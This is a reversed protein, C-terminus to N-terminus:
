APQRTAAKTPRHGKGLASVIPRRGVWNSKLAQALEVMVRYPDSARIIASAAGVCEMGLRLAASVDKATAIGAGCAVRIEPNVAKAAQLSATIIEPRANSIARGSGILDPHEVLIMDPNFRSVTACLEPSDTCVCSLLGVEKARRVAAEIQGAQLRKEAHNILTGVAGAEKVAEPLVHGTHSGPKIPDIHQAFVPIGVEKSIAAIDTFQPILVISIGTKASARKALVALRLANRGTGELYAKLGVLLFPLRIAM